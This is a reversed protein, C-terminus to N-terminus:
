PASAEWQRCVFALARRHETERDITDAGTL